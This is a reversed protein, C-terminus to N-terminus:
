NGSTELPRGLESDLVVIDFIYGQRVLYSDSVVRWGIAIFKGDKRWYVRSIYQQMQYPNLYVRFGKARVAHQLEDIPIKVRVM